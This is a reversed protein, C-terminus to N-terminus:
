MYPDDPGALSIPGLTDDDDELTVLVHVDNGKEHPRSEVFRVALVKFRVVVGAAIKTLDERRFCAKEEESGAPFYRYAPMKVAPLYAHRLPGPRIFAGNSYVKYVVGQLVDGEVPMFTRCTFSVPFTLVQKQHHDDDNKNKNNGISKVATIGLHFGHEKSASECMLDELLRSLIQHHPPSQSKLDKSCIAVDRTMEVESFMKHGEM